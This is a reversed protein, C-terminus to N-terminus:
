KLVGIVKDCILVSSIFIQLIIATMAYDFYDATGDTLVNAFIVSILAVGVLYLATVGVCAFFMIVNNM